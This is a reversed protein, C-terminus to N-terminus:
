RERLSALGGQLAAVRFRQQRLLFAATASLRGDECCCIYLADRDLDAMRERLEMLPICMSDPLRESGAESADRVDLWQAGHKIKDEAEGPLLWRVLSKQIYDSFAEKPLRLVLSEAALTVTANRRAGTILAEEGFAMGEGLEAVTEVAREGSVRRQVTARGRRLIFYSGGEDGERIIVRGAKGEIQRMHGVMERVNEEPVDRFIECKRLDYVVRAVDDIAKGEPKGKGFGSLFGM